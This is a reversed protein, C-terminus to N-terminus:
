NNNKFKELLENITKKADLGFLPILENLLKKEYPEIISIDDEEIEAFKYNKPNNVELFYIYNSSNYVIKSAVIYEKGDDLLIINNANINKM